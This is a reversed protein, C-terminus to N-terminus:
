CVVGCGNTLIVANAFNSSVTLRAVSDRCQTDQILIKM